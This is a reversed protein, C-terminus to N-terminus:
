QVLIPGVVTLPGVLAEKFIDIGHLSHACVVAYTQGTTFNDRITGSAGAEVRRESLRVAGPPPIVIPRYRVDSAIQEFEGFSLTETDLYFLAFGVARHTDNIVTLRGPGSPIQGPKPNTYHAPDTAVKLSCGARSRRVIGIPTSKTVAPGTDAPVVVKESRDLSLGSTVIWVAAAFVAIGVVGAAIRQNRRKRDRRRLLDEFRGDPVVVSIAAREARELIEQDTM